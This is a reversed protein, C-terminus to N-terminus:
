EVASKDFRPKRTNAKGSRYGISGSHETATREFQGGEARQNALEREIFDIVEDVGWRLNVATPRTAKLKEGAVKLNSRFEDSTRSSQALRVSECAVGFAAAVGISPAGRVIMDTIANCMQDLSTAEVWITEEPLARQDILYVRRDDEFKLPMVGRMNKIPSATVM